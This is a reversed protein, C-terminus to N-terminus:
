CVSDDEDRGGEPGHVHSSLHYLAGGAEFKDEGGPDTAVMYVQRGRSLVINCDGLLGVAVHNADRPM